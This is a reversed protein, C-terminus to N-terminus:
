QPAPQTVRYGHAFHSSTYQPIGAKTLKAYVDEAVGDEGTSFSIVTKGTATILQIQKLQEYNGGRVLAARSINRLPLSTMTFTKQEEDWIIFNFKDKTLVVHEGKQSVKASDRSTEGVWAKFMIDGPEPTAKIYTLDDATIDKIPAEPSEYAEKINDSAEGFVTKNSYCLADQVMEAESSPAAKQWQQENGAIALPIPDGGNKVDLWDEMVWYRGTECNVSRHTTRGIVEQGYINKPTSYELKVWGTVIVDHSVEVSNDDRYAITGAVARGRFEQWDAAQAMTAILLLTLGAVKMLAPYRTKKNNMQM